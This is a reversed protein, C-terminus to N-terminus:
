QREYYKKVLESKIRPKPHIVLHAQYEPADSATRGQKIKKFKEQRIKAPLEDASIIDEDPPTDITDSSSTDIERLMFGDQVESILQCYDVFRTFMSQETVPGLRQQIKQFADRVMADPVNSLFLKNFQEYQNSQALGRLVTGSIKKDSMAGTRPLNKVEIHMLEQPDQKEQWRHVMREFEPGRTGGALLIIHTYGQDRSWYLSAFPSEIDPPGIQLGPFSAQIIKAREERTLPNETKDMTNSIFLVVNANAEKGVELASQILREHGITPPQFRGFMLIVTSAM